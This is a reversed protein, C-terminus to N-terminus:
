QAHTCNISREFLLKYKPEKNLEMLKKIRENAKHCFSNTIEIPYENNESILLESEALNLEFAMNQSFNKSLTLYSEYAKEAYTKADKYKGSNM